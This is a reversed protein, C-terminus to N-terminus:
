NFDEKCISEIQLKKKYKLNKHYILSLKEIDKYLRDKNYSYTDFIAKKNWLDYYIIRVWLCNGQKAIFGFTSDQAYGFYFYNIGFDYSNVSKLALENKIKTIEPDESNM